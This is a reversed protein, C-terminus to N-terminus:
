EVPAFRSDFRAVGGGSGFRISPSLRPTLEFGFMYSDRQPDVTLGISTLWDAGIRTIGVTSSLLIANGFDYSTGFSSYWKPSLWYSWSVNLASTAIPGTNIVSYGIFINGRPPRNLSVGSTIVRVGFPDNTGRPSAVPIPDGAIDFFEFWGYSQLATRDGIFWEWNYMNQGFAKGFNDRDADPFYTTTLDLTMIDVIRRRGEPGRRTQLRQRIGLDLTTMDDQIDTTGTIPSVSRRLTLLRPDYQPPLITEYQEMAFYRRVLEYTNDDLTDQIGIRGLNVNSYSTRFNADFNVKHALGHLNLLESEVGPFIRWAMVNARVGAAGFARGLASGQPGRIYATQPLETFRELPPLSDAFQNDWGVLQGQLYPVVRFFGFNLPLDLEHSTWARGTRFPGSTASVPDFPLLAFVNPNAVEVATHTNAYDIGSNQWYTFTDGLLSDGLRYYDLKPFFQSQTYWDQLNAEGLLTVATNQRQYILYALTAQDLGSDFLRKYYQELFHRDSVYAGELQLRLDVDFPADTPVFSQM